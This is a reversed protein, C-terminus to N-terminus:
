GSLLHLGLPMVASMLTLRHEDAGLGNRLGAGSVFHWVSWSHLDTASSPSADDASADFNFHFRFIAVADDSLRRLPHLEHRAMM